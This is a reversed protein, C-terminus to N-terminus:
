TEICFGYYFFLLRSMARSREEPPIML